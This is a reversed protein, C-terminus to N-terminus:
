FFSFFWPPLLAVRFNQDWFTPAIRQFCSEFHFGYCCCCFINFQISNVAAAAAAAAIFMWLLWKDFNPSVPSSPPTFKKRSFFCGVFCFCFRCLFFEILSPWHNVTTLLRVFTNSDSILSVQWIVTVVKRKGMEVMPNRDDSWLYKESLSILKKNSFKKGASIEYRPRLSFFLTFFLAICHLWDGPFKEQSAQRNRMQM